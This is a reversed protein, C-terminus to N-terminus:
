RVPGRWMRFRLPSLIALRASSLAVGISASEDTRLLVIGRRQLRATVEPHPFGFRNNRGLHAIAVTPRVADLFIESSSTRSGHHSLKLVDARVANRVWLEAERSREADGALLLCREGHCARLALSADNNTASLAPADIDLVVDGFVRRTGGPALRWVAVDNELAAAILRRGHTEDAAAEAIWVARPRVYPLLSILGAAHDADAHSAVFIDIRDYGAGRLWPLVAYRGTQEPRRGSGGADVLMTTGDPFVLLTCDGQGVPIARMEIGDPRQFRAPADLLLALSTGVILPLVFVRSFPRSVAFGSVGAISWCVIGALSPRGWVFPLELLGGAATGVELSIWTSWRAVQLSVVDLPWLGLVSTLGGLAGAPLGVVALPPVVTLNTIPGLLPLAGFHWYMVPATVLTPAISAALAAKLSGLLRSLLGTRRKTPEEHESPARGFAGAGLLAATALWSLQFGADAIWLPEWALLVFASAFLAHIPATKRGVLEALLVAVAMVGARAASAPAGTLVVYGAVLPATIAVAAVRTGVRAGIAPVRALLRVLLAFIAACLLTLHSGSVALVHAAGNAAFADRVEPDLMGRSGTVMAVLVGAEREPLRTLMAREMRLRLRDIPRKWTWRSGSWIPDAVPDLVGSLGSRLAYRRGDWAFEHLPAVASRRTARVILEDGALPLRDGRSGRVEVRAACEFRDGIADIGGFVEARWAGDNTAPRPGELVRVFYVAEDPLEILALADIRENALHANLAGAFFAVLVMSCTRFAGPSAVFAASTIALSTCAVWFVSVDPTVLLWFVGAAFSVSFLPLLLWM